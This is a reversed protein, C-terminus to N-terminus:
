RFPIGTALGVADLVPEVDAFEGDPNVVLAWSAAVWTVILTEQPYSASADTVISTKGSVAPNTFSGQMVVEVVYLGATSWDLSSLDVTYIGTTPDATWASAAVSGVSVDPSRRVRLVTATTDLPIPKSAGVATLAGEFYIRITATKRRVGVSARWQTQARRQIGEAAYRVSSDTFQDVLDQDIKQAM